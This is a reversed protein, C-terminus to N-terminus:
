DHLNDESTTYSYFLRELPRPQKLSAATFPLGRTVRRPVCEIGFIQNGAPWTLSGLVKGTQTDLAFVGCVSREVDLGPAYQQFRAIVRSVGVFAVTGVFALGRTWGPLKAVPEFREGAAVGVEGYGSNDVWLRGDHLRASHPRTLGLVAPERSDGAFLVGRQDVPFNKQGPLRGGPVAASASFFSGALDAGAAISNLQLYNRSFDPRGEREISRPWWVPEAQGRAGVEIVANLGVATAHLKGGVLALDHLYACGPLFRAQVPVLPADGAPHAEFDSRELSGTVPRLEYIQNPNRTSTVYVVGARDDVALGSPHPLPMFSVSPRGDSVTLAMVLHEYERTVLLTVGSRELVGWFEGAAHRRLLEPDVAAADRWHAIIQEPRRWQRAHSEWRDAPATVSPLTM